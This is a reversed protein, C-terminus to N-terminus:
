ALAREGARTGRQPAGGEATSRFRGGLIELVEPASTTKKKDMVIPLPATFLSPIERLIEEMDARIVVFESLPVVRSGESKQSLTFSASSIPSGTSLTDPADDVAPTSPIVSM